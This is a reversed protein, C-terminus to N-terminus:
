ADEWYGTSRSEGPAAPKLMRIPHGAQWAAINEVMDRYFVEFKTQMVYGIHPTLVTNELTRLPHDVPLPEHEFVDLGAGAIRNQQLAAVLAAEDVLEGRSTNIFYASPKMLAFEPAGVLRVTRDSLRMHVSVVDARRFLEDKDVREVGLSAARETTLNESWAILKMRFVKAIEAVASGLYGLGVLGLTMDQLGNGMTSIWGGQRLSRDERVIQRTLAVMLGFTFEPIGSRRPLGDSAISNNETRCVVVGNELAADFDFVRTHRGGTIILLKLKPLQAFVARPFATRERMTCVVDFDKLAAVLAEPSGIPDPFTTVECDPLSAWDALKLAIRHYDDLVAIKTTMGANSEVPHAAKDRVDTRDTIEM